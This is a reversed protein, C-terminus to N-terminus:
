FFLEWVGDCLVGHGQLSVRLDDQGTPGPNALQHVTLGDHLVMEGIKYGIFEKHTDFWAYQAPSMEHPAKPGSLMDRPVDRWFYMGAGSKPISLPLTLSLTADIPRPFEHREHPKDMHITGGFLLGPPARHDGRFIHFGPLALHDNLVASHGTHALIAEAVAKYLGAGIERLVPNANAAIAAYATPADLYTAAGLTHFLHVQDELAHRGTWHTEQSVIESVLEECESPSLLTIPAGGNFIDWPQTVSM